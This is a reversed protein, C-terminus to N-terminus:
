YWLEDTGELCESDTDGQQTEPTQFPPGLGAKTRPLCHPVIDFPLLEEHLHGKELRLLRRM